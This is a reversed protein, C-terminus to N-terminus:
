RRLDASRQSAEALLLNVAYQTNPPAAKPPNAPTAANKAARIQPRAAIEGALRAQIVRGQALM